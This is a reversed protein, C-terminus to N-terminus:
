INPPKGKTKISGWCLGWGSGSDIGAQNVKVFFPQHLRRECPLTILENIIISAQNSDEAKNM